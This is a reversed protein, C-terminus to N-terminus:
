KVNLEKKDCQDFFIEGMISFEQSKGSRVLFEYM